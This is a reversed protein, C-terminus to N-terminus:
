VTGNVMLNEHWYMSPQQYLLGHCFDFARMLDLCWLNGM